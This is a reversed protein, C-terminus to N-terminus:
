IEEETGCICSEKWRSKCLQTGATKRQIGYAPKELSRRILRYTDTDYYINRITSHGYRELKMYPNMIELLQKKQRVTLLYKLEYRKFITQYAM